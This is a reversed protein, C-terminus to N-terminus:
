ISEYHDELQEKLVALARSLHTKVSGISCGMVQATTKTDLGEVMRMWFAQQQRISLMALVTDVETLAESHALQQEPQLGVHHSVRELPDSDDDNDTARGFWGFLRSRRTNKRHSDTIRNHLISFFLTRWENAPRHQYKQVLRIMTDQVVDLAEDHDSLAVRAIRYARQEVDALFADM